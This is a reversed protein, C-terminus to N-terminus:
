HRTPISTSEVDAWICAYACTTNRGKGFLVECERWEGAREMGWCVAVEALNGSYTDAVSINTIIVCNSWHEEDRSWHGPRAHTVSSFLSWPTLTLAHMKADPNIVPTITAATIARHVAHPRPRSRQIHAAALHMPLPFKDHTNSPIEHIAACFHGHLYIVSPSIESTGPPICSRTCGLM